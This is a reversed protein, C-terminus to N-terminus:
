AIVDMKLRKEKSTPEISFNGLKDGNVALEDIELNGQIIPRKLVQYINVSENSVGGIKFGYPQLLPNFNHLDLNSTNIVVHHNPDEDVFGNISL